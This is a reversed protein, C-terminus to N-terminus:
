GRRPWVVSLAHHGEDLIEALAAEAEELRFAELLEPYRLIPLDLFHASALSAALAQPHDFLRHYGGLSKRKARELAGPPFGERRARAIRSGRSRSSRWAM